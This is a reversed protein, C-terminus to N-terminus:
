PVRRGVRLGRSRRMGRWAHQLDQATTAVL